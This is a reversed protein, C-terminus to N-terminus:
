IFHCPSRFIGGGACWVKLSKRYSRFDGTPDLCACILSSLMLRMMWRSCFIFRLSSFILFCCCCCYSILSCSWLSFYLCPFIDVLFLVFDLYRRESIVVLFLFSGRWSDDVIVIVGWSNCYLCVFVVALVLFLSFFSVSSCGYYFTSLLFLFIGFDLSMWCLHICQWSLSISRWFLIYLQKYRMMMWLARCYCWFVSWM